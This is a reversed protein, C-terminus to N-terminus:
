HDDDSEPTPTLLARIMEIQRILFTRDSSAVDYGGRPDPNVPGHEFAEMRLRHDRAVEFLGTRLLREHDAKIVEADHAELASSAPLALARNLADVGELHLCFDGESEYRAARIIRLFKTLQEVQAALEAERQEAADLLCRGIRYEPCTIGPGDEPGHNHVGNPSPRPAERETTLKDIETLAVAADCPWSRLCATCTDNWDGSRPDRQHQALAARDFTNM